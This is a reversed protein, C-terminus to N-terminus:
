QADLDWAQRLADAFVEVPQAGSVGVRRAMVVFPVGTAGLDHAAREEARVVDTLEVGALVESVRVPDLGAGVALPALHDADFVSEARGFYAAYLADLLVGQREEGAARALLRHADMTNGTTRGPAFPLGEEAAMAGVRSEAADVDAASMRYRTALVETIPEGAGPLHSPDLEFSRHVVTVEDRHEFGAVAAAIRARGVYCFPCIVDAWVEVLM